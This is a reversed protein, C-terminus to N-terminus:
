EPNADGRGEHHPDARRHRGGRDRRESDTRARHCPPECGRTAADASQGQESGNPRDQFNVLVPGCLQGYEWEAATVSDVNPKSVAAAFPEDIAAVFRM